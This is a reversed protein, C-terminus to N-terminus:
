LLGVSFNGGLGPEPDLPRWNRSAEGSGFSTARRKSEPSSKGDEDRRM